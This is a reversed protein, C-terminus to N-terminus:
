KNIIFNNLDLSLHPLYFINSCLQSAYNPYHLQQTWDITVCYELDDTWAMIQFIPNLPSIHRKQYFGLVALSSTWVWTDRKWQSLKALNETKGRVQLYTNVYPFFFLLSLHLFICLLIAQRMQSFCLVASSALTRQLSDQGTRQEATLSGLTKIVCM